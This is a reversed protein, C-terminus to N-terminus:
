MNNFSDIYSKIQERKDVNYKKEREERNKNYEEEQKQLDDYVKKFNSYTTQYIETAKKPDFRRTSKMYLVKAYYGQLDYFDEKTRKAGERKKVTMDFAKQNFMRNHVMWNMAEPFQAYFPKFKEAVDSIDRVDERCVYKWIKSAQEQFTGDLITSDDVDTNTPRKSSKM